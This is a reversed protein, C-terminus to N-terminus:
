STDMLLESLYPHTFQCNIFDNRKLFATLKRLGVLVLKFLQRLACLLNMKNKFLIAMRKGIKRGSFQVYLKLFKMKFSTFDTLCMKDALDTILKYHFKDGTTCFLETFCSNKLLGRVLTRPM